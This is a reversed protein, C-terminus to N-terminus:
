GEVMGSIEAVAFSDSATEIGEGTVQVRYSGSHLTEFLGHHGGGEGPTLPLVAVPKAEGTRWLTATLEADEKATNAEVKVSEGSFFLDEVTLSVTYGKRFDGLDLEFGSLIGELHALVAEANQLSGHQTAAYMANPNESMEIPIASGRPVTGDGSLEKGKIETYLDVGNPRFRASQLTTQGLGVIPHISYGQNRYAELQQHTKVTSQIDQHFQLAQAAREGNVHPIGETEGVKVLHGDGPDYAKYIPLLQYVSTLDRVLDTLDLLNNPGKRLGNALVELAQLSGRYPTGFTILAKTDQWGELVELFYRSVLGGMSHALLILRADANGSQERWQHLWDKSRRALQRAAVKNNRRWDYPFTFFNQGPTLDFRQNLSNIITTYGDIKWFGPLLHLDPMLASAVIGDELDDVEPPDEPLALDNRLKAGGTLLIKALAAGSYGWLVQNDKKLVSGLIGPLLVIVHPMPLKSM